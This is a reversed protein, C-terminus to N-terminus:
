SDTLPGDKFYIHLLDSLKQGERGQLCNSAKVRVM